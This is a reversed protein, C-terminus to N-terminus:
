VAQAYQGHRTMAAARDAADTTASAMGAAAGVYALGAAGLALLAVPWRRRRRRPPSADFSAARLAAFEGPDYPPPIFSPEVLPPPLPAAPARWTSVPLQPPPPPPHAAEDIPEVVAVM